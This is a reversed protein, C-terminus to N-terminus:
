GGRTVPMEVETKVLMHRALELKAIAARHVEDPGDAFRLTRQVAYAYALPFDDSVGGGGHAQIAMDIIDCAMNPAIVKIMAIEAKAVKNGVTDMMYAAKLTLLRAMEIRCRADAIREHWVSQASIPKGFAIRSNLRKCMLELAREAIGISRMCHHIRGPGLRGQAIEFGRGEGLLINSVPVRVNKLLVEMHGHPADDYGFVSLARVVTIGPTNAPVIVMSQQSHRPADPNTKGMLIYVACRPDGAGSSWWKRGNIVYHDGDREITCQINTADSSAVDPETMLFASRIEGRLLPELWRDKLEESAYREFTEMNGTDPASCNFVEAAFPVRGMIECLTAYELNSLGQPARPSRPLFLNWLGAKQAKPKLEEIIATPIWANGKARNAAIEEFFRAENPYIHEDMFALLQERMHKVKDTYDFNM